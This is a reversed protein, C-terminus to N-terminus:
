MPLPLGIPIKVTQQDVKSKNQLWWQSKSRYPQLYISNVAQIYCICTWSHVISRFGPLTKHHEIFKSQKIYVVELFYTVCNQKSVSIDLHILHSKHPNQNFKARTNNSHILGRGV